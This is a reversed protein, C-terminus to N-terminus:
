CINQNIFSLFIITIERDAPMVLITQVKLEAPVTLVSRQFFIDM